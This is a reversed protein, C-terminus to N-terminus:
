CDLDVFAGVMLAVVLVLVVVDVIIDDVLIVELILVTIDILVGYFLVNDVHGDVFAM